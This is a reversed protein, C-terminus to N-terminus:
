MGRKWVAGENKNEKLFELIVEGGEGDFGGRIETKDGYIILKGVLSVYFGGGFKSDRELSVCKIADPLLNLVVGIGRQNEQSGECVRYKKHVVVKM